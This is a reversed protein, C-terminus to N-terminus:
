SVQVQLWTISTKASYITCYHLVMVVHTGTINGRHSIVVNTSQQM